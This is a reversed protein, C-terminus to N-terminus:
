KFMDKLQSALVKAAESREGRVFEDEKLIVPSVTALLKARKAMENLTPDNTLNLQPMLTVLELINEMVSDHMKTKSDKAKAELVNHMHEVAKMLREAVHKMAGQTLERQTEMASQVIGDVDSPDIGEMVRIDDNNPLAQHAFKFYFAKRVEAPSDFDDENFMGAMQFRRDEIMAAYTPLFADVYSFFERKRDGVEVLLDMHKAAAYARMGGDFWPNSQESWWVRHKTANKHVLHLPSNKSALNKRVKATGAEAGKAEEIERALDEDKITASYTGINLQGIMTFNRISKTEVNSM